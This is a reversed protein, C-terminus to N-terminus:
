IAGLEPFEERLTQAVRRDSVRDVAVKLRDAFSTPDRCHRLARVAAIAAGPDSGVVVQLLYDICPPLGLLGMATLLVNEFDRSHRQESQTQLLPFAAENRSEGLALAAECRVDESPHTLFIGIRDLAENPNLHILDRFCEGLVEPEDDGLDIKLRLLLEGTQGGGHAIARAAGARATKEPDGLLDVLASMARSDNLQILAFGCTARITSATDISRRTPDQSYIPEHQQYHINKLFFDADDHELARLAQCLPTKAECGPDSKVPDVLFRAYADRLEAEFQELRRQDVLKAARGVTRPNTSTLAAALTDDLDTTNRGDEIARLSAQLPRDDPM